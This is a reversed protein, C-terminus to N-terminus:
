CVNGGGARRTKKLLNIMDEAEKKSVVTVALTDKVLIWDGVKIKNVLSLDVEGIDTVAKKDKLENVKYPLAFCM